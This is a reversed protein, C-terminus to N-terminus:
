LRWFHGVLITLIVNLELLIINLRKVFFPHNLLIGHSNWIVKRGKFRSYLSSSLIELCSEQVIVWLSLANAYRVVQYRRLCTFVGWLLQWSLIRGQNAFFGITILLNFFFFTPRFPRSFSCDSRHSRAASNVLLLSWLKNKRQLLLLLFFRCMHSIQPFHDCYFFFQVLHSPLLQVLFTLIVRRFFDDFIAHSLLFRCIIVM